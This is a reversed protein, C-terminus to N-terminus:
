CSTNGMNTAYQVLEVPVQLEKATVYLEIRVSTKLIRRIEQNTVERM